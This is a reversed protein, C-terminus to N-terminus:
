FIGLFKKASGGNRVAEDLLAKLEANDSEIDLGTQSWRAVDNWDREGVAKESMDLYAAVLQERAPGLRRDTTSVKLIRRYIKDASAVKPALMYRRFRDFLGDLESQQSRAVRLKGQAASLRRRQEADLAGTTQLKQLAGQKKGAATLEGTLIDDNLDLLLRESTSRLASKARSNGPDFALVRQYLASAKVPDTAREADAMLRALQQQRKMRGQLRDNKAQASNITSRMGDMVGMGAGMEVVQKAMSLYKTSDGFQKAVGAQEGRGLLTKAMQQLDDRYVASDVGQEGLKAYLEIAQKWEGAVVASAATAVAQRRRAQENAEALERQAQAVRQAEVMEELRESAGSSAPDLLLAKEAYEQALAWDGRQQAESSLQLLRQEFARVAALTAPHDPSITLATQYKDLASNSFPHYLRGAGIDEQAVALLVRIRSREAASLSSTAQWLGAVLVLVLMLAALAWWKPKVGLIPSRIVVTTGGNRNFVNAKTTAAASRVETTQLIRGQEEEVSLLLLTQTANVDAATLQDLADQLMSSLEAGSSFRDDPHKAMARDIFPQVARLPEPLVPIPDNVHKIAITLSSDGDYPVRGTLIEFIMVALSYLDTRGDLTKGSAQEPSMYTPTGLVDGAQTMRSEAHIARAIGFDSVLAEGTRRFLINAPKIDRHIYGRAHAVDLAEAIQVVIRQLEERSVPQRLREKLDGGDVFEMAIYHIDHYQSVDYVQVINPHNLDASIRAERLFRQSFDSDRLSLEPHMVKLAVLRDLRLHRARYVHAMGGSGLQSEISYDPIELDM